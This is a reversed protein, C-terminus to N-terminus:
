DAFLSLDEEFDTKRCVLKAIQKTWFIFISALVILVVFGLVTVILVPTQDFDGFLKPNNKQQTWNSVFIMIDRLQSIIIDLLYLGLIKIAIEYIDIKKM